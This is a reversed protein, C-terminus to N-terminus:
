RAGRTVEYFLTCELTDNSSGFSFRVRETQIWNVLAEEFRNCNTPKPLRHLRIGSNVQLDWEIRLQLLLLLMYIFWSRIVDLGICRGRKKSTCRICITSCDLSNGVRIWNWVNAYRAGPAARRRHETAAALVAIRIFFSLHSFQALHWPSSSQMHRWTFQSEANTWKVSVM